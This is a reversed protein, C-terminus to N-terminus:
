LQSLNLYSPLVVAWQLSEKTNGHYSDPSPVNLNLTQFVYLFFVVFLM